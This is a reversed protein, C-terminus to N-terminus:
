ARGRLNAWLLSLHEYIVTESMRLGRLSPYFAAPSLGQNVHSLYHTPAPVPHLGAKTFLAMARPMHSASTVLLFVDGGVIKGVNRAQTESDFSATEPLLNEPEAGLEVALDRMAEADSGTGFVRGGSLIVKSTPLQRHLRLGEVLHALSSESLRSAPPLDPDSSTGGGLVVVWKIGGGRLNVAAAPPYRHELSRLLRGAGFGYGLFLLLAIGVSTTIKGALWRRTLWQLILGGLMVALCFSLPNFLPAVIKKFLFSMTDIPPPSTLM